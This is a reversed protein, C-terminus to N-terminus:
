GPLVRLAARHQEKLQFFYDPTAGNQILIKNRSVPTFGTGTITLTIDYSFTGGTGVEKVTYYHSTAIQAIGSPTTGSPDGSLAEIEIISTSIDNATYAFTAPRYNSSFGVPFSRTAIGSPFKIRLPGNVYSTGSSTATGDVEIDGSSNTAGSLILGNTMTLNNQIVILKGAPVTVSPTANTNNIVVNGYNTTGGATIFQETTNTGNFEYTSGAQFDITSGTITVSKGGTRYTGGSQVRFTANTVDLNTAASTLVFIGNQIDLLGGSAIALIGSQLTVVDTANTKNIRLNAITNGGGGGIIDQSQDGVMVLTGITYQGNTTLTGTTLNGGLSLTNASNGSALIGSAINLEKTISMNGSQLTVTKNSSGGHNIKVNFPTLTASWESGVTVNNNGSHAYELLSSTGYNLVGNTNLNIPPTSGTSVSRLIGDIQLISSAGNSLSFQRGNKIEMIGTITLTVFNISFNNTNLDLTGAVTRSSNLAVNVTGLGTVNTPGNVAPWEDNDVTINVGSMSYILTSGPFYSLVTSGNWQTATTRGGREYQNDIYFTDNGAFSIRRYGTTTTSVSGSHKLNYFRIESNSNLIAEADRSSTGGGGVNNRNTAVIFTSTGANFSGGTRNFITVSLTSNTGSGNTVYLNHNASEANFTGNSIGIADTIGDSYSVDGSGANFTGSSLTFADGFGHSGARLTLTGGNVTTTSNVTLNFDNLDFTGTTVTLIGNITVDTNATLTQGSNNVQLNNFPGDTTSQGTTTSNFNLVGSATFTDGSGPDTVVFNGGLTITFGGDDLIAGNADGITLNGTITVNDGLTVSANGQLDFNVPDIGTLNTITVSTGNPFIVNDGTVPATNGIWNTGVSFGAIRDTRYEM